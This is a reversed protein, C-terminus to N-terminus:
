VRYRRVINYLRTKLVEAKEQRALRMLDQLCISLDGEVVNTNLGTTYIKRYKTAQLTEQATLVEEKIKEGPRLGTFIIKIDKYPRLGSMQILRQALDVIQIPQGMDLAFLEGGQGIAAAQIVLQCAESAMMFYRQMEPHTITIPGGKKIQEKFIPVVSGRSGLVNGFRVAMFRTMNKKNLCSIALEAVRKTAGMISSPRVAKDTSILIFKDVQCDVATKALLWTGGINNKVAECSNEEMVPVHKYAAAHFVIEPQYKKFISKIKEKDLIDAVILSCDINTLGSCFNGLNFIGTEDQDILILQKPGFPIAQKILEEGISGAAGTILVKKQWLFQKIIKKDLEIPDRAILDESRTKDVLRESRSAEYYIRKLSRLGGVCVLVLVFNVFIVSRPFRIFPDLTRLLFLGTAFLLTGYFTTKVIKVLESVSVYSWSLGYLGQWWFIPLHALLSLGIFHWLYIRYEFPVEGDFRLLFAVFMASILIAIDMLLFFIVKKTPTRKFVKRLFDM